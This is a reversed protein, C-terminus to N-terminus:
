YIRRGRRIIAGIEICRDIDSIGHENERVADALTGTYPMRYVRDVFGGSELMGMCLNTQKVYLYGDHVKARRSESIQTLRVMM